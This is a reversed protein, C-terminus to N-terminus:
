RTDVERLSRLKKKGEETLFSDMQKSTLYIMSKGACWKHEKPNAFLDKTDKNMDGDIVIVVIKSVMRDDGKLMVIM